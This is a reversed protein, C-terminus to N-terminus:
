SDDVCLIRPNLWTISQESAFADQRRAEMFCCCIFQESEILYGKFLDPLFSPPTRLHGSWNAKGAISTYLQVRGTEINYSLRTKDKWQIHFEPLPLNSMFICKVSEKVHLRKLYIMLKPVKKAVMGCRANLRTFLTKLKSRFADSRYNRFIQIVPLNHSFSISSLLKECEWPYNHKQYVHFCSFCKALMLAKVFNSRMELTFKGMYLNGSFTLCFCETNKVYYLYKESSLFLCDFIKSLHVDSPKESLLLFAPLVKIYRILDCYFSTQDKSQISVSIDSDQVESLNSLWSLLSLKGVSSTNVTHAISNEVM